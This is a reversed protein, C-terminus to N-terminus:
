STAQTEMQVEIDDDGDGAILFLDGAAEMVRMAAIVETMATEAEAATVRGMSAIEDRMSEAMRSSLAALIFEVTPLDKGRAGAMARLLVLPDVARTIRPIDRPDIRIPINAWTFIAKRVGEAFDADDQDLGELVSERTLASTFNLIAGVKEVPGSDLAPRPLTEAAQVLAMGIRAMAAAEIGGTLSMAYAIRRARDQPLASFTEAAKPVPLRSFMVAAIELAESQALAALHSVPLTAIREWPDSRGSLAALRRLRDSSDRSIRGGMIDLTGHISGPFTLGVADLSDCFEEVVTDRTIRDVLGMEAMERALADQAQPPLSELTLEGGEALLVRVIIAAKQRSTLVRGSIM